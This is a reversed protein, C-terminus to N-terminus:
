LKDVKSGHWWRHRKRSHWCWSQFPIITSLCPSFVMPASEVPAVPVKAGTSALTRPRSYSKAGTGKTCEFYIFINIYNYNYIYWMYMRIDQLGVGIPLSKYSRHVVNWKTCRVECLLESLPLLVIGICLSVVYPIRLWSCRAVVNLIVSSTMGKRLSSRSEPDTHGTSSRPKLSRQSFLYVSTSSNWVLM